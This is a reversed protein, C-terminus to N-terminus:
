PYDSTPPLFRGHASSQTLVGYVVYDGRAQEKIFGMYLATVMSVVGVLVLSRRLTVGRVAQILLGSPNWRLVVHVATVVVALGLGVYRLALIGPTIVSAPLCAVVM